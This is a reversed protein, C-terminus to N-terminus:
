KFTRGTAEGVYGLDPFFSHHVNNLEQKMFANKRDVQQNCHGKWSCITSVAITQSVKKVVTKRFECEGEFACLTCGNRVSVGRRKM